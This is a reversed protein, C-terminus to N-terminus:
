VCRCVYMFVYISEYVLVYLDAVTVQMSGHASGEGNESALMPAIPLKVRGLCREGHLMPAFLQSDCLVAM